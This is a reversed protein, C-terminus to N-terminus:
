FNRQEKEILDYVEEDKFNELFIQILKNTASTPYVKKFRNFEEINEPYIYLNEPNAREITPTNDMGLLYDKQYERYTEKVSEILKSDPYKAIFKEWVVIRDGLEKFSIVLGADSSYTTKNENKIIELYDKYDDTVKDKFIKYYFDHNTKIEVMGEGLEDFELEYTSLEKEKKKILNKTPLDEEYFKELLPDEAQSLKSLILQNDKFYTEYLENAENKSINRLQESVSKKKQSFLQLLQESTSSNELTLPTNRSNITDTNEIKQNSSQQSAVKKDKCGIISLISIISLTIKRKM